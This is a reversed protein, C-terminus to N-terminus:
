VTQLAERGIARNVGIIFRSAAIVVLKELDNFREELCAKEVVMGVM